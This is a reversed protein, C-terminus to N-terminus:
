RGCPSPSRGPRGTPRTRRAAARRPRARLAVRQGHRPDGPDHAGLAGGVEDRQAVRDPQGADGDVEDDVVRADGHGRGRAGGVAGADLHLREGGDGDGAQREDVHGLRDVRAGDDARMRTSVFVPPLFPSQVGTVPARAPPGRDDGDGVARRAPSRGSVPPGSSAPRSRRARGRRRRRRARARRPRRRAPPGARPPACAYSRTTVVPPVPSDGRSTVGPPSRRRQEVPSTGPRASASRAGRRPSRASRRATARGRRCSRRSAPPSGARSSRRPGRRRRRARAPARARGRAAARAPAVVSRGAAHAGGAPRRPQGVARDLHPRQAGTVAGGPGLDAGAVLAHSAGHSPRGGDCRGRAPRSACCGPRRRRSAACRLAPLRPGPPM